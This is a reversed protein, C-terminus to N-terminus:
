TKCCTDQTRAAVNYAIGGDRQVMNRSMFSCDSALSIPADHKKASALPLQIAFSVLIAVFCIPVRGATPLHPLEQAALPSEEISTKADVVEVQKASVVTQM